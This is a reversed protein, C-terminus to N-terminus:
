CERSAVTRRQTRDPADLRVEQTVLVVTVSDLRREHTREWRACLYAAFGEQLQDGRRLDTLYVYWRHSPYTDSPDTPNFVPDGGRLADVRDGDATTGVPVYWGDTSLPEPAFMDWRREEPDLTGGTSLDVVGVGAANWVLVFALLVVAVTRAVRRVGDPPLSNPHPLRSKESRARTALRGTRAEVWDWVASPLFPLLGAVSVLPFVGLRLTALMFLHGGALAAVLATRARGTTLLLLPSAVLLALWAHAGLQLLLPFGALLDGLGVTLADVGFVLRVAEGSRWASGRLKLVANVLYVALVQVLLGATAVSVVREEATADPAADLSWRTGLPLLVGWLLLRRLLSDGANLVALNRTHLSVLLVFLVLAAARCRYGAVLALAALGTLVFLGAAWWVSGSLAYLSLRGVTPYIEFLLERPLVGADTYFAVLDPARLALDALVLLGLAIRLAALARPDVGLRPRLVDRVGNLVRKPRSLPPM